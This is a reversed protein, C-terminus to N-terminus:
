LLLKGVHQNAIFGMQLLFDISGNNYLIAINTESNVLDNLRPINQDSKFDEIGMGVFDKQSTVVLGSGQLEYLFEGVIKHEHPVVILLKNYFRQQKPFYEWETFQVLEELVKARQTAFSEITPVGGEFNKLALETLEQRIALANQQTTQVDYTKDRFTIAKLSEGSTLALVRREVGKAIDERVKNIQEQSRAIYDEPQFFSSPIDQNSVGADEWAIQEQILIYIDRKQLMDRYANKLEPSPNESAKFQSEVLQFLTESYGIMEAARKLVDQKNEWNRGSVLYDIDVRRRKLSIIPNGSQSILNPDFSNLKKDYEARKEPDSLAEYAIGIIKAKHEAQRQLEPAARTLVDPHYQQILERHAKRIQEISATREVRLVVYYDVLYDIGHIPEYPRM